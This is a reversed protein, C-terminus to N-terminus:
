KKEKENKHLQDHGIYFVVSHLLSLVFVHFPPSCQLFFLNLCLCSQGRDGLMTFFFFLSLSLVVKGMMLMM